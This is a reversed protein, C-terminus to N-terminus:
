YKLREEKGSDADKDGDENRGEGEHKCMCIGLNEQMSFACAVTSRHGYGSVAERICDIM